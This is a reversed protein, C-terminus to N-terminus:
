ATPHEGHGLQTVDDVLHGAVHGGPTALLPHAHHHRLLVFRAGLHHHAAHLCESTPPESAEEVCVRTRNRQECDILKVVTCCGAVARQDVLHARVRRVTDQDATARGRKPGIRGAGLQGVQEWDARELARQILHLM